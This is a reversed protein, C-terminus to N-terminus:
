AARKFCRSYSTVRMPATLAREISWGARLRHSLVDCEVGIERAWESITMTRGSFSVLRSSRRNNAQSRYTDWCCNGPEYGRENDMRSLTRGKPREGMDALFNEFSEWRDCITIGRGGYDAYSKHSPRKCRDHMSHWSSYTPTGYGGRGKSHGHVTRAARLIENTKCGCSKGREANGPNVTKEAGCHACRVRYFMRHGRLVHGLVLYPGVTQGVPVRASENTCAASCFKVGGNHKIRNQAVGPYLLFVKGCHQCTFELKVGRPKREYQGTPM